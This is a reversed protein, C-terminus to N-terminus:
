TAYARPPISASGAPTPRRTGPRLELLKARRSQADPDGGVGHARARASQSSSSPAYASARPAAAARGRRRAAARSRPTRRRARRGASRAARACRSGRRLPRGDHVRRVRVAGLEVQEGLRARADADARRGLRVEAVPEQRDLAHARAPDREADARVRVDADVRELLKALEFSDRAPLASAAVHDRDVLQQAETAVLARPAPARARPGVDLDVERVGDSSPTSSSSM